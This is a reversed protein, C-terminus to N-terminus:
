YLPLEVQKQQNFVEVQGRNYPSLSRAIRMVILSSLEIVTNGNDRNCPVAVM